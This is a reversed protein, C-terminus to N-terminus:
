IYPSLGLGQGGALDDDGSSVVLGTGPAEGAKGLLIFKKALLETVNRLRGDTGKFSRTELPGAVFVQSGRKILEAALEAQGGHVSVKFFQSEADQRSGEVAVSFNAVHGGGPLTRMAADATAWGILQFLNLTRNAM